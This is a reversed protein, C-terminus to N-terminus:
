YYGSIIKGDDDDDDVSFNTCFFHSTADVVVSM